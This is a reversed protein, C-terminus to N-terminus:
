ARSYNARLSRCRRAIWTSTYTSPDRRLQEIDSEMGPWNAAIVRYGKDTYHRAWREWSLATMWVGNILVITTVNM